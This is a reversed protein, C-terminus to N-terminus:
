LNRDENFQPVALPKLWPERRKTWVEYTPFLVGTEDFSGLSLEIEDRNMGAIRSGCIPCFCRVYHPTSAWGKFKGTITVDVNSYVVFPQFASAHAKRCTICHCLGVRLPKANTQFRVAGCACGGTLLVGSEMEM